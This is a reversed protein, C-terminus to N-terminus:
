YPPLHALKLREFGLSDFQSFLFLRRSFLSGIPYPGYMEGSLMTLFHHLVVCKQFSPLPPIPRLQPRFAQFVFFALVESFLLGSCAVRPRCCDISSSIILHPYCRRFSQCLSGYTWCFRGSFEGYCSLCGRNSMPSFLGEVPHISFSSM